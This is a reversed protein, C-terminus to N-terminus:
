GKQVYIKESINCLIRLCVTLFFGEEKKPHFVVSCASRKNSWSNEIVVFLFRKFNTEIVASTLCGTRVFFRTVFIDVHGQPLASTSSYSEKM